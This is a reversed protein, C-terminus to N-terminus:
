GLDQAGSTRRAALILCCCLNSFMPPGPSVLTVEAVLKDMFPTRVEANDPQHWGANGWGAGCHQCATPCPHMARVALARTGQRLRRVAHRRPEEGYDDALLM